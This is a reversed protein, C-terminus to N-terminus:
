LTENVPKTAASPLHFRRHMGTPEIRKSDELFLFVCFTEKKQKTKNQKIEKRFLLLIVIFPSLTLRHTYLTSAFAINLIGCLNQLFDRLGNRQLFFRLQIWSKDFQHITSDKRQDHQLLSYRSRVSGDV